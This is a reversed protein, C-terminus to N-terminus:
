AAPLEITISTGRGIESQIDIRGSHREVIHKTITLGLGTGGVARADSQTIQYFPDFVRALFEKPIGCGRDTVTIAVMENSKTVAASVASGKESFKVANSLLNSMVQILRFRDGMVTAGEPPQDTLALTVEFNQAFPQNAQISDAVLEVADLHEFIFELQGTQSKEVDLIDDILKTLRDCNRMALSIMDKAKEPLTGIAGSAMLGISGMVAAVPTRLEHSVTSLFESKMDVATEAVKIAKELALIQETERTIDRSVGRYGRFVGEDDFIAKGNVKFVFRCGDHLKIHHSFNEFSEHRELTAIHDRWNDDSTDGGISQIFEWRTKGLINEHKHGTTQLFRDSIFTFRLNEDQEYLWDSAAEAFDRFRAESDMLAKAVAERRTVDRIASVYGLLKGDPNAIASASVEGLFETGNKRRYRLIGNFVGGDWHAERFQAGPVDFNGDLAFLVAVSRGKLEKEGYGFLDSAHENLNSIIRNEDLLVLAYPAQRYLAEFWHRDAQQRKEREVAETIDMFIGSLRVPDGPDNKIIQGRVMVWIYHGNEHRIRYSIEYPADGNIHANLADNVRPVDDPHLRDFFERRQRKTEGDKIGLIELLGPSWFLEGTTMNLDFLGDSTVHLWHQYRQADDTSLNEEHQPGCTSMDADSPVSVTDTHHKAM